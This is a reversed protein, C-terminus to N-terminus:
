LNKKRLRMTITCSAMDFRNEFTEKTIDNEFSLFFVQKEYNWNKTCNIYIAAITFLFFSTKILDFNCKKLNLIEFTWVDPIPSHFKLNAVVKVADPLCLGGVPSFDKDETCRSFTKGYIKKSILQKEQLHVVDLKQLNFKILM